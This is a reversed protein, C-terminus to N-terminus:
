ELAIASGDEALISGSGDELLIGGAAAIPGHLRLTLLGLGDPEPVVIRYTDAGISLTDGEAVDVFDAEIGLAVPRRGAIGSRGFENLEYEHDFIVEVSVPVGTAVPTFSAAVAFDTTDFYEALTETFM